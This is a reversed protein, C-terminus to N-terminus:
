CGSLFPLFVCWRYTADVWWLFVACACIFLLAGVGIFIPTMNSKKGVPPPASYHPQPPPAYAPQPPASYAPPSPQAAKRSVAVTAGADSAIADYMLVIQEGLSVVDGPKLVVPGALRQGNVFTGNTSGLDELVYKGGQFMLRAHKRSIEADNIAVGNTSDRGITLQDGELPFTVGPTPGSRMVFQFQAM